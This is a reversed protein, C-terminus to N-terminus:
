PTPDYFAETPPTFNGTGYLASNSLRIQSAAVGPTGRQDIVLDLEVSNAVTFSGEYIKQGAYHVTVQNPGHKQLAIHNFTGAQGSSLAQNSQQFDNNYAYMYFSSESVGVPDRYVLTFGIIMDESSYLGIQFTSSTDNDDNTAFSIGLRGFVEVTWSNTFVLGADSINAILGSRNLSVLSTSENSLANVGQFTVVDYQGEETIDTITVGEITAQPPPEDPYWIVLEEPEPEPPEPPLPPAVIVADGMADVAFIEDSFNAVRSLLNGDVTECPHELAKVTVEGEESM